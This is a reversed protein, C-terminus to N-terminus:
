FFSARESERIEQRVLAIRKLNVQAAEAPSIPAPKGSISHKPQGLMDRYSKISVRFQDYSFYSEAYECLERNSMPFLQEMTTEKLFTAASDDFATVWISGSFDALRVELKFCRNPSDIPAQCRECRSSTNGSCSKRCSPCAEYLWKKDFAMEKVWVDITSYV